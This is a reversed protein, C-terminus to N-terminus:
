RLWSEREIYNLSLRGQSLMLVSSSSYYVTKFLAPMIMCGIQFRENNDIIAVDNWNLKKGQHGFMSWRTNIVTNTHSHFFLFHSEQIPSYGSHQTAGQTLNLFIDFCRCEQVSLLWFCAGLLVCIHPPASVWMVDFRASLLDRSLRTHITPSFNGSEIKRMRVCETKIGGRWVSVQSAPGYICSVPRM